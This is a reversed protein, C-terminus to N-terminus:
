QIASFCIDYKMSVSISYKSITINLRISFYKSVNIYIKSIILKIKVHKGM